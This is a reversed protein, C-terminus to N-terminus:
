QIFGWRPGVTKKQDPVAVTGDDYVYLTLKGSGDEPRLTLVAKSNPEVKISPKGDPGTKTTDMSVPGEIKWSALDAAPAAHLAAFSTSIVLVIGALVANKMLAHHLRDDLIM